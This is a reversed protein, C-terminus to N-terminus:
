QYTNEENPTKQQQYIEDYIPQQDFVREYRVRVFEQTGAIPEIKVRRWFSLAMRLRHKAFAEETNAVRTTRCTQFDNM